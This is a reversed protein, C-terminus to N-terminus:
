LGRNVGERISSYIWNDICGNGIAYEMSESEWVSFDDGTVCEIAVRLALEWQATEWTECDGWADLDSPTFSIFGSRSTCEQRVLIRFDPWSVHTDLLKRLADADITCIISDTSFNYERPSILSVGVPEPLGVAECFERAYHQAYLQHVLTFDIDDFNTIGGDEIELNLVNDIHAGHISYYFGSFPIKVNFTKM